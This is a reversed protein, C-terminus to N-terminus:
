GAAKLVRLFIEMQSQEWFTYKDPFKQSYKLVEM